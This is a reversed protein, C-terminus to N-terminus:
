PIIEQPDLISLANAIGLIMFRPVDFIGTSFLMDECLEYKCLVCFFRVHVKIQKNPPQFFM